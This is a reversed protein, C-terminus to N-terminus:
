GRAQRTPRSIKPATLGRVTELGAARTKEGELEALRQDILEQEAAKDRIIGLKACCESLFRLQDRETEFISREQAARHMVAALMQAGWRVLGATNEPPAPLGALATPGAVERQREAEARAKRRRTKEAGSIERGDKGRSPM